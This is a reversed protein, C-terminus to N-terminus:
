KRTFVYVTSDGNERPCPLVRALECAGDLEARAAPRARLAEYEDARLVVLLRGQGTATVLQQLVATPDDGLDVVRVGPRCDAAPDRWHNPRLYFTLSPVGEGAGVVIGAASTNAALAIDAAQRWPSRAGDYATLLLITDITVALVLAAPVAAAASWGVWGSVAARVREAAAVAVAAALLLFPPLTSLLDNAVVRAGLSAAVAFGVVPAAVAALLAHPRPWLVWPAVLAVLVVSPRASWVFSWLDTTGPAALPLPWACTLALAAPVAIVALLGLGLAVRRRREAAPWRALLWGAALMPLVAWGSRDSACALAAALLCVLRRTKPWRRPAALGAAFALLAFAMAVVPPAVMQSQAVHWPHVALLGAALLATRRLVVLNAALAALPVSVVGVFVFPLRLWGQGEFRVVGHDILWRLLLHVLPERSAAGAFYGGDGHLPMTVARWTDVEVAAMSWQEVHFLRLVAGLATIGFLLWLDLTSWSEATAPETTPEPPRMRLTAPPRPPRLAAFM